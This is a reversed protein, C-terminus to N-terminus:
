KVDNLLRDFRVGTDMIRQVEVPDPIEANITDFQYIRLEAKIDAPKYHYKLCFLAMYVYLQEMHAPTAGTKLDHIRLHNTRENFCIADTTGYFNDSYYLMCEPYMHYGIADNVFLAMTSKGKLQFGLDIAEAAFAHLRTGMEKNQFNRYTNILKDDDYNIWHYQSPSLFAHTGILKEEHSDNKFEMTVEKKVITGVFISSRIFISALKAM